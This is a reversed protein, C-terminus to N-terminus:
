APPGTNSGGKVVGTHTHKSLKKGAGSVEGEVTIKGSVKVDGTIDVTTCDISVLDNSKINVNGNESIINIDSNKSVIDVDKDGAIQINGENAVIQLDGRVVSIAHDNITVSTSDKMSKTVISGDPFIEVYSGTKHYVHIRESGPTDDIELLHGSTTNITKNNPYKADYKTPKEGLEEIYEKKVANKGAAQDSISDAMVMSGLIMPHKKDGMYFGIVWAGKTLGVPAHGLGIFGASTVPMLVKAWPLINLDNKGGPPANEGFIRVRVQGLKEPDDIDEVVGQFWQMTQM